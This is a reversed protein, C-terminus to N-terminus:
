LKHRQNKTSIIKMIAEEDSGKVRLFSKIIISIFTDKLTGIGDVNKYLAWVSYM